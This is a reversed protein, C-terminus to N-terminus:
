VPSRSRQEARRDTLYTRATFQVDENDTINKTVWELYDTPVDDIPVATYKGFPFRTLLVPSSSVKVLASPTAGPVVSLIRRLLAATVYADGFARHPQALENDALRLNLWYRLTQNKYSPADPWFTASCKRTCIWKIDDREVKLCAKEFKAEHAAFYDPSASGSEYLLLAKPMLSAILPADKVMDDTIHHVASAEPPIPRGPNVLSSWARGRLWPETPANQVIDITAIEVIQTNDPPLGCTEVDIVRIIM